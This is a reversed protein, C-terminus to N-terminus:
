KKKSYFESFNTSITFNNPGGALHYKAYGYSLNFKSIKLGFGFSFGAIGSRSELKLEQRRQFNYGIRLHFNQSLLVEGGFVLHRGLKDAFESFKTKKIIDGTIPDTTAVAPDVYTLDWKELHTATFNIRFPAHSIKKSVGFQVEFPLPEHIDNYAKWQRGFNKIVLGASILHKKNNYIAGLDIANGISTYENSLKSYITKLTGGVSFVSDIPRSYSLDLAYESATFQGTIEGTVDASTFKGYDMFQMGASFSGMNKYSRSYAAYGYQIDALYNIYSLSLSNHMTSDLLSPNQFSLNLDNDKVSILTGGLAVVRAPNTLNLFEYTNNGGTQAYLHCIAFPLHCIALLLALRKM